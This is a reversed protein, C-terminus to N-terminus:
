LSSALALTTICVILAKTMIKGLVMRNEAYAKYQPTALDLPCPAAAKPTAGEYADPWATAV